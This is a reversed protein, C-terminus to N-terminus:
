FLQMDLQVLYPCCDIFQLSVVRFEPNTSGLVRLIQFM